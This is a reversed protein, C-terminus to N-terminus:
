YVFAGPELPRYTIYHRWTATTSGVGVVLKIAGDPCFIGLPYTNQNNAGSVVFTPATTQGDAVSLSSGAIASALSASAGTFTAAAGVTPASQYQVTSAVSTGSTICESILNIIQIDGSVTFITDGNVMTKTASVANGVSNGGPQGAIAPTAYATM